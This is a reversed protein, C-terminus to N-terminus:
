RTSRSPTSRRTGPLWQLARAVDNGSGAGIILVRKVDAWAPGPVADRRFLYPLAYNAYLTSPVRGRSDM